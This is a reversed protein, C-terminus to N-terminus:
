YREVFVGEQMLGTCAGAAWVVAEHRYIPSAGSEICHLGAM